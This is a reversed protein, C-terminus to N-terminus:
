CMFVASRPSVLSKGTESDVPGRARRNGEFLLCLKAEYIETHLISGTVYVHGGVGHRKSTELEAADIRCPHLIDSKTIFPDKASNHM